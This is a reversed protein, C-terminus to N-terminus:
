KGIGSEVAELFKRQEKEWNLEEKGLKWAAQQCKLLAERNDYFYQLCEALKDIDGIPFSKGVQPYKEMFHKQAATESAIIANGAILYTFIKNTLCIDRNLVHPIELALGIDHKRSINFIEEPLVPDIFKLVTPSLGQASLLKTFYEKQQLSCKGLL